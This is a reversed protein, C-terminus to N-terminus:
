VTRRETTELYAGANCWVRLDIFTYLLVDSVAIRGRDRTRRIWALM